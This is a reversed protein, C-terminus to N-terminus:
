SARVKNASLNLFNHCPIQAFNKLRQVSLNDVSSLHTYFITRIFHLSLQTSYHEYHYGKIAFWKITFIKWCQIFYQMVNWAKLILVWFDGHLCFRKQIKKSCNMILKEKIFFSRAITSVDGKRTRQNGM